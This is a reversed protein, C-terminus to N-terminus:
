ILVPDGNVGDRPDDVSRRKRLPILCEPLANLIALMNARRKGSNDRGYQEGTGQAHSIVRNKFCPVCRARRQLGLELDAGLIRQTPCMNKLGGPKFNQLGKNRIHYSEEAVTPLKSQSVETM